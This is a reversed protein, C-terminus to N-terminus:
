KKIIREIIEKPNQAAEARTITYVRKTTTPRTKPVFNNSAPKQQGYQSFVHGPKGCKFCIPGKIHCNLIINM